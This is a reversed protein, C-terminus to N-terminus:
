ETVAMSEGFTERVTRVRNVTSQIGPAGNM